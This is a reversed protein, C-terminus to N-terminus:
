RGLNLLDGGIVEYRGITRPITVAQPGTLALGGVGDGFDCYVGVFEPWGVFLPGSPGEIERLEIDPFVGEMRSARELMEGALSELEEESLRLRPVVVRTQGPKITEIVPVTVDVHVPVPNVFLAGPDCDYIASGSWVCERM